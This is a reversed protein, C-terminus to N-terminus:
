NENFVANVGKRGHWYWGQAWGGDYGTPVPSSREFPLVASAHPRDIMVELQHKVKVNEIRRSPMTSLCLPCYTDEMQCYFSQGDDSCASHRLLRAFHTM